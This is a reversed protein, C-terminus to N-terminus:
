SKEYEIAGVKCTRVCEPEGGCLDCKIAVNRIEDFYMYEYPCADVCTRCATCTESDVIPINLTPHLRIAEESCSDMCPHEECQICVRPDNKNERHEVKVQIMSQRPNTWGPNHIESCVLECSRCGSCNEPLVKIFYRSDQSM